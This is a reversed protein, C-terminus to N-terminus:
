NRVPSQAVPKNKWAWRSSGFYNFVFSVAVAFLSAAIYWWGFSLLIAYVVLNLAFTGLSLLNYKGLRRLKNILGQQDKTELKFTFTDNWVFNNIISLEVGVGQAVIKGIAAQLLILVLENVVVGSAGVLVFKFLRKETLITEKPSRIFKSISAGLSNLKNM